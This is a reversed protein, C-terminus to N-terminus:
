LWLVMCEHLLLLYLIQTVQLDGTLVSFKSCLASIREGGWRILIGSEGILRESQTEEQNANPSRKIEWVMKIAMKLRYSEINFSTNKRIETLIKFSPFITFSFFLLKKHYHFLVIKYICHQFLFCITAYFHNTQVNNQQKHPM